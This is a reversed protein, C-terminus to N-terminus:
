RFPTSKILQPAAQVMGDWAEMVLDPEYWIDPKLHFTPKMVPIAKCHKGAGYIDNYVSTLLAQITCSLSYSSRAQLM